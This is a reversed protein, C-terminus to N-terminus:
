QLVTTSFNSAGAPIDLKDAPTELPVAEEWAADCSGDQARAPAKVLLVSDGAEDDNRDIERGGQRAVFRLLVEVQSLSNDVPLGRFLSRGRSLPM